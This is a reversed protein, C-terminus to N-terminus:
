DDHPQSPQALQRQRDSLQAYYVGLGIAILYIISGIGFFCNGIVQDLPLLGMDDLLTNWDHLVGEGGLLPLEMASADKVYISVDWFNEGAWALAIASSFRQGTIFFYSSIIAPILIQNFSGGFVHMFPGFLMFIIHGAEHFILNAGHIFMMIRNSGNIFDAINYSWSGWLGYVAVLGISGLKLPEFNAQLFPLWQQPNPNNAIWQPFSFASPSRAGQPSGAPHASAQNSDMTRSRKASPHRPSDSLPPPTPTLPFTEVWLPSPATAPLVIVRVQQILPKGIPQLSQHITPISVRRKVSRRLIVQLRGQKLYVEIESPKLNLAQSLLQGIAAPDGQRAQLILDNPKM